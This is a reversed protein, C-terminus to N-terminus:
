RPCPGSRRDVIRRKGPTFQGERCVAVSVRLATEGMAGSVAPVAEIARRASEALRGDGTEMAKIEVHLRDGDAERSLVATFDLVAPLSFLPEDLDAMTLTGKAGVAVVGELRLKVREMSKLATACPCREPIFRGFDGTRYRILPMGRRTLTTFVIEGPEGDELVVGSAPDIIEFLLDAERLHYGFHAACEVGGGYGMETMGYHNFVECGWRTHLERTIAGPVHDATLLAKRVFARASRDHDYRALLLAQVPLGVLTNVRERAILDLTILPDKVPGHAIAVAGLRILGEVLLEGVSGQREGPLLILVRDGPGTFTSMGHSFFDVTLERDERTFYIRKPDGTTGSTPLTVVRNIENQSVCLFRLPNQRLDDAATFPLRALDEIRSLSEAEFGALRKRYFTSNTQALNVTQRLKDLQWSVLERRDLPLGCGIRTAIWSELPTIKMCPQREHNSPNRQAEGM